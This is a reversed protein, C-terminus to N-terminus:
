SGLKLPTLPLRARLLWESEARTTVVLGGRATLRSATASLGLGASATPSAVGIRNAFTLTALAPEITALVTCASGPAAHKTINHIAEHAVAGLLRSCEDDLRALDGVITTTPSFGHGRLTQEGESLATGLPTAPPPAPVEPSTSALVNMVLRLERAAQESEDRLRNLDEISVGQRSVARELSLRLHTLSRAVTDHMDLAIAQRQQVQDTVLERRHAEALAAVTNGVIWVVAIMFAWVLCGGVFGGVTPAAMWTIAALIVFYTVTLTARVRARGRIGAGLIPILASYEGLTAWGDPLFPYAALVLALGTAAPGPWRATLGALACAALDLVLVPWPQGSAPILALM